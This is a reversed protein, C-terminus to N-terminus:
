RCSLFLSCHHAVPLVNCVAISNSSRLHTPKHDIQLFKAADTVSKRYDALCSKTTESQPTPATPPSTTPLRTVKRLRLAYQSLWRRNPSRLESQISLQELPSCLATAPHRLRPLDPAQSAPISNVLCTADASGRFSTHPCVSLLPFTPDEPFDLAQVLTQYLTLPTSNRSRLSSPSTHEFMMDVRPQFDNLSVRQRKNSPLSFAPLATVLNEGAVDHFSMSTEEAASRQPYSSSEKKFCTESRADTSSTRCHNPTQCNPRNHQTQFNTRPMALSADHFLGALTNQCISCRHPTRCLASPSCSSTPTPTGTLQQILPLQHATDFNATESCLMKQRKHRVDCRNHTSHCDTRSSDIVSLPVRIAEALKFNSESLITPLRSPACETYDPRALDMLESTALCVLPHFPDLAAISEDFSFAWSETTKIRVFRPYVLSPARVFAIPTRIERPALLDPHNCVKRLQANLCFAFIIEDLLPTFTM